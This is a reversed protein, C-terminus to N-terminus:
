LEAFYIFDTLKRRYAIGTQCECYRETSGKRPVFINNIPGDEKPQANACFVVLRQIIKVWQV